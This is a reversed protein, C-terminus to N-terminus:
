GVRSTPKFYKQHYSNRWKDFTNLYDDPAFSISKLFNM